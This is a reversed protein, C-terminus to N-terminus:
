PSNLVITVIISTPMSWIPLVFFTFSTQTLSQSTELCMLRMKWYRVHLQKIGLCGKNSMTIRKSRIHKPRTTKFTSKTSFSKRMRREYSALRYLKKMGLFGFSIITIIGANTEKFSINAVMPFMAIKIGNNGLVFRVTGAGVKEIAASLQKAYFKLSDSFEKDNVYLRRNSYLWNLQEKAYDSLVVM